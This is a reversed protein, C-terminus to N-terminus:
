GICRPKHWCWIKVKNFLKSFNTPNMSL